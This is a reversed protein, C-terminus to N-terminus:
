RVLVNVTAAGATAASVAWGIHLDNATDAASAPNVSAGPAADSALYIAEGETVANATKALSFVGTTTIEVPKGADADTVAVGVLEGVRVIQGSEVGGTPATVTVTEGRQVYNKM